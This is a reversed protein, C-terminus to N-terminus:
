LKIKSKEEKGEMCYLFINNRKKPSEQFGGEGEFRVLGRAEGSAERAKQAVEQLVQPRAFTSSVGLRALLQAPRFRRLAAGAEPATPLLTM